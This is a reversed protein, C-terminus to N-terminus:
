KMSEDSAGMVRHMHLASGDNPVQETIGRM